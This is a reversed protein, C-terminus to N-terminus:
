LQEAQAQAQAQAQDHTIEKWNPQLYAESHLDDIDKYKRTLSQYQKDDVLKSARLLDM